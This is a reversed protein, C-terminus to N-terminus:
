DFYVAIRNYGDSVQSDATSFADTFTQLTGTPSVVLNTLDLFADYYERFDAYADKWKGPPSTFEKIKLSTAEQVVQIRLIKYSYEEDESLKSLSDNFDDRFYNSQIMNSTKTYPDTSPDSVEFITNYWVSRILNGCDEADAAASLMSESTEQMEKIYNNERNIKVTFFITPVIVVLCVVSIVIMALKNKSIKLCLSKIDIANGQRTDLFQNTSKLPNNAAKFDDGDLPCGCNGCVTDEDNVVAGCEPCKKEPIVEEAKPIEAGCHVCSKAKDSIMEGCNPCKIMAM